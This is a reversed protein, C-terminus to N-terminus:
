QYIREAATRDPKGQIIHYHIQIGEVARNDQRNWGIYTYFYYKMSKRHGSPHKHNKLADSAGDRRKNHPNFQKPFM